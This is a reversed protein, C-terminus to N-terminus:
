DKKKCERLPAFGEDEDYMVVFIGYDNQKEFIDFDKLPCPFKMGSWNLKRSNERLKKSLRQPNTKIPYIASTIAWKACEHDNRNEVNITAKKNAIFSPTPIYSSGEKPNYPAIAIDFRFINFYVWGSQEKQFAEIFELIKEIMLGFIEVIEDQTYVRETM